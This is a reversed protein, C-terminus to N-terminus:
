TGRRAGGVGVRKVGAPGWLAGYRGPSSAERGGARGSPHQAQPADLLELVLAEELLQRRRKDNFRYMDRHRWNDRAADNGGM